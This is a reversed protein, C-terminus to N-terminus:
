EKREFANFFVPGKAPRDSPIAHHSGVTAHDVDPLLTSANAEEGGPPEGTKQGIIAGSYLATLATKRFFPAQCAPFPPM